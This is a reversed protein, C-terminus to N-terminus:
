LSGLQGCAAKIKDGRKYRCAVTHGITELKKKILKMKEREVSKFLSGPFENYEILNIYVDLNRLYNILANVEKDNDNINKILLHEISIRRKTKSQYELLANKIGELNYKKAIPMIKERTENFFSHLSIALRIQLKEEALKKIGPILGCTSITIKRAGINKGMLSNLIYISKLVNDYNDFPEGMGMFVVNSIRKKSDKEIQIVQDVIEASTLNRKFRMKGTACFACNMKCGVQSSICLTFREKENNDTLLVAEISNNDQLKFLYKLTGDKDKLIKKIRLKSIYFEKDKFKQKLLKSINNMKDFDFIGYKHIWRFIIKAIYPKEDLDILIKEIESLSKNKLDKEM